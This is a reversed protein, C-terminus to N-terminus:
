KNSSSLTDFECFVSRRIFTIVVPTCMGRWWRGECECARDKVDEGNEGEGERGM